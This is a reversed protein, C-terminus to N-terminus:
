KGRQNEWLLVHLRNSFNYRNEKAMKEIWTRKKLLNEKTTAQPMLIIKKNPLMYKKIVQTIEKIDEPKDVVFKFFANDLDKFYPLSKNYLKELDIGKKGNLSNSTKPSINWQDILKVLEQNPLITGNTEVEIRYPHYDIGKKKKEEEEEEEELSELLVVIKDQQLLPEGGTIVINFIKSYNKIRKIIDEICLDKVEKNYDYNEWDWTYKTDCWSCKLNCTSLRLFICPIGASPGEGQISEFIESVKLSQVFRNTNTM